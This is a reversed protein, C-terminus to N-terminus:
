CLVARLPVRGRPHQLAPRARRLPSIDVSTHLQQEKSAAAAAAAAAAGKAQANLRKHRQTLRLVAADALTISTGILGRMADDIVDDM